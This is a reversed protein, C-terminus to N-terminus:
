HLLSDCLSILQTLKLNRLNVKLKRQKLLLVIHNSRVVCLPINALFKKSFSFNKNVHRNVKVLAIKNLNSFLRFYTILSSSGSYLILMRWPSIGEWSLHGEKILKVELLRTLGVGYSGMEYPKDKNVYRLTKAYHNGLYFIHGVEFGKVEGDVDILNYNIGHESSEERVFRGEGLQHEVIFEFSIADKSMALDYSKCTLVPLGIKNFFSQYMMHVQRLVALATPFDRVASYADKMLFERTRSLGRSRLEDRYKFSSQFIKGGSPCLRKMLLTAYEESTPALLFGRKSTLFLNERWNDLRGTLSWTVESQLSALNVYTWGFSEHLRVLLNELERVWRWALPTFSPNGATEELYLSKLLSNSDLLIWDREIIM